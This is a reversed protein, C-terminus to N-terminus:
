KQHSTRSISKFWQDSKILYRGVIQPKSPFHDLVNRELTQGNRMRCDIVGGSNEDSGLGNVVKVM